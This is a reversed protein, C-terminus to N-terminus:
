KEYHKTSTQRINCVKYINNYGKSLKVTIHSDMWSPPPAILKKAPSVHQFIFFLSVNTPSPVHKVSYQQIVYIRLVFQLCLEIRVQFRWRVPECVVRDTLQCFYSFLPRSVLATLSAVAVPNRLSRWVLYRAHGRLNASRARAFPIVRCATLLSQTREV